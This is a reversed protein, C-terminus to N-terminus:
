VLHFSTSDLVARAEDTDRARVVEIGLRGLAVEEYRNSEPLDDVWLIRSGALFRREVGRIELGELNSEHTSFDIISRLTVVLRSLDTAWNADNLPVGNRYAFAKLDAPLDRESPMGAGNVLVPVIDLRLRLATAIEMRVFDDRDQIRPREDDLWGPGIISVMVRCQLLAHELM